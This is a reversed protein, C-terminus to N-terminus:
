QNSVLPPKILQHCDYDGIGYLLEGSASLICCYTATSSQKAVEVARLDQM